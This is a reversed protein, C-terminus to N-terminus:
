LGAFIGSERLAPMMSFMRMMSIAQDVKGQRRESFHPKLALLLQSNKDNTNMGAFVQQLRLITGMDINPMGTGSAANDGGGNMGSLMGALASFDMGGNQPQVNQPPPNSNGTNNLMGALTSFDIGNGNVSQEQPPPPPATNGGNGAFMGALSSLDFGGPQSNQEQGANQSNNQGLMNQINALQEQGEKTSLIQQLKAMLDDM